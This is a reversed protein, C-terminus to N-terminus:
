RIIVVNFLRPAILSTSRTHGVDLKRIVCNQVTERSTTTLENIKIMLSQAHRIKKRQWILHLMQHNTTTWDLLRKLTQRM